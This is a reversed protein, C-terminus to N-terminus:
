HHSRGSALFLLGTIAAHQLAPVPLLALWLCLGTVYGAGSLLSISAVKRGSHHHLVWAWALLAAPSSEEVSHRMQCCCLFPFCLVVWLFVSNLLSQVEAKLLLSSCSPKTNIIFIFLNYNHLKAFSIICKGCLRIDAGCPNCQEKNNQKSFDFM